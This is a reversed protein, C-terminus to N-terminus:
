PIIIIIIIIIIFIILIIVVKSIIPSANRTGLGLVSGKLTANDCTFEDDSERIILSDDDDDEDDSSSSSLLKNRQLHHHHHSLTSCHSTPPSHTTQSSQPPKIVTSCLACLLVKHKSTHMKGDKEKGNKTGDDRVNAQFKSLVFNKDLTNCADHKYHDGAYFNHLHNPSTHKHVNDSSHFHKHLHRDPSSDHHSSYHDHISTLSEFYASKLIEACSLRKLQLCNKCLVNRRRALGEAVRALGQKSVSEGADKCSAPEVNNIVDATQKITNAPGNLPVYQTNNHTNKNSLFSGSSSVHFSYTNNHNNSNNKMFTKDHDKNHKLNNLTASSSLQTLVDNFENM